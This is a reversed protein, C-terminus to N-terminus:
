LENTLIQNCKQIFREHQELNRIEFQHYINNEYITGHGFKRGNPLDWIYDNSSINNWYKISKNLKICERTFKQAVDNDDDNSLSPYGCEGYLTTKFAMFLPHIYIDNKHLHNACGIAGVINHHSLDTYIQTILHPNLPICDIDFIICIDSNCTKIINELNESHSKENIHQQITYNFFEFVMKQYKLIESSLTNHAYSHM